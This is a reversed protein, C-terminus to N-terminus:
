YNVRNVAINKQLILIKYDMVHGFTDSIFM